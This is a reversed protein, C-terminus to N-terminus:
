SRGRFLFAPVRVAAIGGGAGGILFNNFYLFGPVTVADGGLIILAIGVTYLRGSRMPIGTPAAAAAPAPGAEPSRTPQAAPAVRRGFTPPGGKLLGIPLFLIGFALLISSTGQAAAPEPTPIICVCSDRAPTLPGNFLYVGAGGILLFFFALTLFESDLWWLRPQFIRLRKASTGCRRAGRHHLQRKPQLRSQASPPLHSQNAVVSPIDIVRALPRTIDADDCCPQQAVVEYLGSKQDKEDQLSSGPKVEM